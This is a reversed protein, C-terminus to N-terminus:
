MTTLAVLPSSLIRVEPLGKPGCENELRARDDVGACRCNYNKIIERSDKYVRKNFADKATLWEPTGEDSGKINKINKLEVKFGSVL